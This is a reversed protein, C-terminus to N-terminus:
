SNQIIIIRHFTYQSENINMVYKIRVVFGFPQYKKGMKFSLFYINLLHFLKDLITSSSLPLASIQINAESIGSGM